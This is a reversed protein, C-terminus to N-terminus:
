KMSPLPRPRNGSEKQRKRAREVIKQREEERGEISEHLDRVEQNLNPAEEGM